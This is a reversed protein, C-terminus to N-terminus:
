PGRANAVGEGKVVPVIEARAIGIDRLQRDSMAMLRGIAWQEMRWTTYATWCRAIAAGVAHVIAAAESRRGAMGSVTSMIM